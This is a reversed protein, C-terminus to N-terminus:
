RDAESRAAPQNPELRRDDNCDIWARSARSARRDTGDTDAAVGRSPDKSPGRPRARRTSAESAIDQAELHGRATRQQYSQREPGRAHTSRVLAQPPNDRAARWRFM